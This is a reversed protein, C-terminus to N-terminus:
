LGLFFQKKTITIITIKKVRDDVVNTLMLINYKKIWENKHELDTDDKNHHYM